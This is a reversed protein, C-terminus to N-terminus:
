FNLELGDVGTSALQVAYDIWTERTVANLSAIVPIGVSQKAKRVWGLHEQPGAHRVKPFFDTMEAYLNDYEHMKEEVRFREYQIQEEFLSHLVVCGAGADEMRLINGIHETLPSPSVVLPNKLNLGLYTTSLDPM